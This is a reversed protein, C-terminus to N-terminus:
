AAGDKKAYGDSIKTGPTHVHLDWKRWESGRPFDITMALELHPSANRSLRRIANSTMRSNGHWDSVSTGPGAVDRRCAFTMVRARRIPFRRQGRQGWTPSELGM